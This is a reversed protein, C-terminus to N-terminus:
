CNPSNKLDYIKVEKDQYIIPYDDTQLSKGVPLTYYRVEFEQCLRAYKHELISAILQWDKDELSRPTRSIYGLVMPKEHYTQHFLAYSASSAGDDVVAGQELSRLEKVYDPVKNTTMPLTAPWMEIILVICFLALLLKGKLNNLKLKALVMSSLIAVALTVMVMMRIPMGSLKMGPILKEM